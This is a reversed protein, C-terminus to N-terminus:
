GPTSCHSNTSARRIHTWWTLVFERPQKVMIWPCIMFDTNTGEHDAILSTPPSRERDDCLLLENRTSTGHAPQLLQKTQKNVLLYTLSSISLRCGLDIHTLTSAARACIRQYPQIWCIAFARFFFYIQSVNSSQLVHHRVSVGAAQSQVTPEAM